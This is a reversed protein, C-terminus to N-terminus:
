LVELIPGTFAVEPDRGGHVDGRAADPRERRLQDLPDRRAFDNLPRSRDDSLEDLVAEVGTRSTDLDHDFFAADTQDTHAVVAAANKPLIKRPGEFRV